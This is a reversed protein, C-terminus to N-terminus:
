LDTSFYTEFYRSPRGFPMSWTTQSRPISSRWLNQTSSKVSPMTFIMGFVLRDYSSVLLESHKSSYDREYKFRCNKPYYHIWQRLYWQSIEPSPMYYMQPFEFNFYLVIGNLYLDLISCKKVCTLFQRELSYKCLKLTMFLEIRDLYHMTAYEMKDTLCSFAAYSSPRFFYFKLFYWKVFKIWARYWSLINLLHIIHKECILNRQIKIFIKVTGGCGNLKIFIALSFIRLVSPM